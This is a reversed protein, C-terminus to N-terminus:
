VKIGAKFGERIANLLKRPAVCDGVSQFNKIEVMTEVKSLLEKNAEMKPAIVINDAEIKERRGEKTIVMGKDGISEVRAEVVQKIKLRALMTRHCLINFINIDRGIRKGEEVITVNKGKTALWEATQVGIENGGWVIVRQGLNVKEELVEFLDLVISSDLGPIQPRTPYAGAAIIIADPAEKKIMDITVEQDLEVPVGLKVMQTQYYALIYNWDKTVPTRAGLRMQGGLKNNKEYLTVGHGRIAAVRAAEMGAPGGGVVMVKKRKDAPKIKYAPDGEHGVRPNVMCTMTADVFIRMFCGFNCAPCTVIDDPREEKVKLPLFPDAIMPRCMEWYDIIGDGIAKDAVEPRNLRYAMGLPPKIGAKKWNEALYLWHGTEIDPTIVSGPTEHWGVTLSIFDVKDQVMRAIEVYEEETNGGEILDASNLRILLPYDPGVQKRVADLIELLFRTRNELSGGYEDTRKNTWKSLFNSILYGVIACIEVGDFGADKIRKAARGHTDVLEKIEDRTLAKCQGYRELPSTFDSPGRPLDDIGYDPPHAYRGTDMIQGVAMAGHKKIAKALEQLGPILSDDHLGMQGVYGKGLIHTFGGQSTVIGANGKAREELYAIEKDTVAGTKKDPFNNVTAAYKMRNKVEYTGIKGPKLLNEFM